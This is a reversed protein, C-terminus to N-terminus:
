RILGEKDMQHMVVVNHLADAYTVGSHTNEVDSKGGIRVVLLSALSDAEINM